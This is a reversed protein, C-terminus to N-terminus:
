ATIRLHGHITTSGMGVAARSIQPNTMQVVDYAQSFYQWATYYDRIKLADEAARLVAEAVDEGEVGDDVAEVAEERRRGVVTRGREGGHPVM